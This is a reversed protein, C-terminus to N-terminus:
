QSQSVLVPPPLEKGAKRAQLHKLFFNDERWQGRGQTAGSYSPQQLRAQCYDECAEPSLIAWTLLESYVCGLAWIDVKGSMVYGIDHEPSRYTQSAAYAAATDKTAHGIGFRMLGFDALKLTGLPHCEKEQSFYLINPPKIDGHVGFYEKDDERIDGHNRGLRTDHITQLGEVLGRCETAIWEVFTKQTVNSTGCLEEKPQLLLDSLSGGEAWPFLLMFTNRTM